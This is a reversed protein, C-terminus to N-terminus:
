RKVNDGRKKACAKAIERAIIINPEEYYEDKRNVNKQGICNIVIDCDKIGTEIDFPNTLDHVLQFYRMGLESWTRM